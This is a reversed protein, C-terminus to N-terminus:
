FLTVEEEGPCPLLCDTKGCKFTFKKLVNVSVKVFNAEQLKLYLSWEGNRTLTVILSYTWDPLAM